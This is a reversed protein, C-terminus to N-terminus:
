VIARLLQQSRADLDVARAGHALLLDVIERQEAKAQESGSGGRGTNHVALHLPTSGSRNPQAPGAGGELLARVAAGSRTRVARHLPAIGSRDTANPDAGARLLMHVIAAQKLPASHNADAAYHLPHAGRRNPARCDAGFRLLLDAIECDFAAAALHLPTDGAYVYHGIHAFFFEQANGREAGVPSALTAL